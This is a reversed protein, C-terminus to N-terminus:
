DGLIWLGTQGGQVGSLCTKGKEGDVAEFALDAVPVKFYKGNLKFGIASSSPTSRLSCPVLYGLKPDLTSGPISSHIKKAAATSIIILTTGTDLIVEQKPLAFETWRPKNGTNATNSAANKLNSPTKFADLKLQWFGKHTVPVYHLSGTYRSHDIGGFLVHGDRGGNKRLSPLFVSVVPQKLVGETKNKASSAIANDMFTNVGKVSMLTGFGLGFVGDEPVDKFEDSVNEALGVTQRLQVDGGVNVIESALHGSASSGDGYKIEWPRPDKKYTSSKSPNFRTHAKCAATSCTTTPFWIDSSGTDFTLQLTQAPTGIKVAGYYELDPNVNVLGVKGTGASLLGTGAKIKINPYRKNLKQIHAPTNHKYSPNLILPIAGFGGETLPSANSSLSLTTTALAMSLLLMLRM